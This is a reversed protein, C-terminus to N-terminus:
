ESDKGDDTLTITEHYGSDAVPTDASLSVIRGPVADSVAFRLTLDAFAGMRARNPDAQFPHLTLVRAVVTGSGLPQDAEATEGGAGLADKLRNRIYFPSGGTEAAMNRVVSELFVLLVPNGGEAPFEPLPRSRGDAVLTLRVLGDAGPALLMAGETVPQFDPAAGGRRVHAYRVEEGAPLTQLIGDAFLLDTVPDAGAPGALALGFLLAVLPRALITREPKM